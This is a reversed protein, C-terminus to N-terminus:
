LTRTRPYDNRKRAAYLERRKEPVYVRVPDKPDWASDLVRVALATYCNVREDVTRSRSPEIMEVYGYEQLMSLLKRPTQIVIGTTKKILRILTLSDTRIFNDEGTELHRCLLDFIFIHQKKLKGNDYFSEPFPKDFHPKM